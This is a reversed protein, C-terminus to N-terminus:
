CLCSYGVLIVSNSSLIEIRSSVVSQKSYLEGQRRGDVKCERSNEGSVFSHEIVCDQFLFAGLRRFYKRCRHFSSRQHNDPPHSPRRM